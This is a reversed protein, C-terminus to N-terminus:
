GDVGAKTKWLWDSSWCGVASMPQANFFVLFDTWKVVFTRWNLSLVSPIFWRSLICCCSHPEHSSSLSRLHTASVSKSVSKWINWYGAVNFLYLVRWLVFSGLGAEVFGTASPPSPLSLSSSGYTLSRDNSCPKLDSPGALVQEGM